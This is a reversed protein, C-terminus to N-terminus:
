QDGAELFAADRQMFHRQMDPLFTGAGVHPPASCLTVSCTPAPVNRGTLLSSVAPCRICASVPLTLASVAAASLAARPAPPRMMATPEVDSRSSSLALSARPTIEGNVPSVARNM